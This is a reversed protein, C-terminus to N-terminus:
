ASRHSRFKWPPLSSEFSDVVIPGKGETWDSSAIAENVADLGKETPFGKPLVALTSHFPEMESRPVVPVGRAKIAAEFLAVLAGMARQTENSLRIIASTTTASPRNTSNDFNCVLREFTVNFPQWKVSEIAEVVKSFYTEVGVCCLYMVTTHLIMDDDYEIRGLKKLIDSARKATRRFAQSAASPRDGLFALLAIQGGSSCSGRCNSFTSCCAAASVFVLLVLLRM